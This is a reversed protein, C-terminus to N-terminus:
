SVIIGLNNFRSPMSVKGLEIGTYSGVGEKHQYGNSM